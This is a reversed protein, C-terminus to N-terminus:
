EAALFFVRREIERAVEDIMWRKRPFKSRKAMVLPPNATSLEGTSV